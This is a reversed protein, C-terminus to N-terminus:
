KAYSNGQRVCSGFHPFVAFRPLIEALFRQIGLIANCLDCYWTYGTVFGSGTLLCILKLGNGKM